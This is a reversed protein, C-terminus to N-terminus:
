LEDGEIEWEHGCETCVRYLEIRYGGGAPYVTRTNPDGRGEECAPCLPWHAPVYPMDHPRDIEVQHYDVAVPSLLGRAVLWDVFKGEKATPCNERKASDAADSAALFELSLAKWDLPEPASFVGMARHDSYEGETLLYTIM